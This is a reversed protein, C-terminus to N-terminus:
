GAPGPLQLSRWAPLDPIIVDILKNYHGVMKVPDNNMVVICPCNM